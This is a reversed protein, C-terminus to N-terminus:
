DNWMDWIDRANTAYDMIYEGTECCAVTKLISLQDKYEQKVYEEMNPFTLLAKPISYLLHSVFIKEDFCTELEHYIIDMIANRISAFHPCVKSEKIYFNNFNYEINNNELNTLFGDEPIDLSITTYMKPKDGDYIFKNRSADYIVYKINMMADGNLIDNDISPTIQVMPYYPKHTFDKYNSATIVDDKHIKRTIKNIKSMVLEHLIQISWAMHEDIDEMIGAFTDYEDENNDIKDDNSIRYMLEVVTQLQKYSIPDPQKSEADIKIKQIYCDNCLLAPSNDYLILEMKQDVSHNNSKEILTDLGSEFLSYIRKHITPDLPTYLEEYNIGFINKGNM